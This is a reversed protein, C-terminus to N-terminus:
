LGDSRPRVEIRCRDTAASRTSIVSAHRDVVILWTRSPARLRDDGVCCAVSDIHLPTQIVVSVMAPHERVPYALVLSENVLEQCWAVKGSFGLLLCCFVTEFRSCQFTGVDSALITSVVWVTLLAL